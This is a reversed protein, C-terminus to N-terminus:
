IQQNDGSCGFARKVEVNLLVLVKLDPSEKELVIFITFVKTIDHPTQINCKINMATTPLTSPDM